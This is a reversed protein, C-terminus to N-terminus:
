LRRVESTAPRRTSFSSMTLRGLQSGGARVCRRRSSARRGVGVLEEVVALGQVQARARQFARQAVLVLLAPAEGYPLHPQDVHGVRM